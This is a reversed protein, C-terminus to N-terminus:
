FTRTQLSLKSESLHIFREAHIKKGGEVSYRLQDTNASDFYCLNIWSGFQQTGDDNKLLQSQKPFIDCGAHGLVQAWTSLSDRVISAKLPEASFLYLHAGGSKSRCVALPLNNERIKVELAVIDIDPLDGHTDIDIVGFYCMGNDMIPVIGIGVKGHLHNNFEEVGPVGKITEMQGGVHFRGFSRTNGRFLSMFRKTLECM